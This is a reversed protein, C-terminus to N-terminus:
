NKITVQNLQRYNICLRLTRDKKKAFLVQADRPLTSPKIFSIDLLEWVQRKLGQLKIPTMQYPAMLILTTGLQLEIYFDVSQQPPFGLLEELFIDVYECIMCLLRLEELTEVNLM